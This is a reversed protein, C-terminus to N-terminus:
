KGPSWYGTSAREGPRWFLWWGDTEVAITRHLEARADLYRALIIRGADDQRGGRWSPSALDSLHATQRAATTNHQYIIPDSM